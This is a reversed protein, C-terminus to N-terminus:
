NRLFSHFVQVKKGQVPITNLGFYRLDNKKETELDHGSERNSFLIACSNGFLVMICVMAHSNM